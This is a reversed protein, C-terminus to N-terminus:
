VALVEKVRAVVNQASIGLKEMVVSGPASAGFRDIGIHHTTISSWGFTSGAELSISPISTPVLANQQAASLASFRDVSPMSIVNVSISDKNLLQAAEVAVHVESGTAVITAVPNNVTTVFAAGHAVAAGDTVVPLNQRSLILATPGDHTVAALWAQSTENADAPRIVQLGPISRLSALHEVPQHTPGDEGVGVSDHSFVFVCRARSLAALRIAPRMYDAFVFFTGGVPIVGGHLAMGVLASGMAHERIGYFVQRGQRHSESFGKQGPLKAGTNGTLDAAGAIVHPLTTDTAELVKQFAQRTAISAGQEFLPLSASVESQQALAHTRMLTSLREDALNGTWTSQAEQGRVSMHQRYAAVLDDPAWFAENPIGMVEKTRAVHDANFPNGHAEHADTFDPSPFGIHTSLVVLTPAGRHSRAETLVKELADCDEAIAGAEIVNWGYSRFRMPVDDSCTMDTSGDITIKNDDFICVLHDLGLHGALSAAEHSVGEMLCGDGVIVFTHHDIADAGHTSRLHEEAIAMGVANAFGQGLPGTTVEVGATHGVEPHGPTLSDWQRFQKIDELTLGWGGLFLLSYQLISAHGNSLIFRDRNMWTPDTPNHRLIRSYMVHALPALSMATGQHGSKAYLPADM